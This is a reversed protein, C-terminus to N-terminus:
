TLESLAVSVCEIEEDTMEPFLPLTILSSCSKETEPLPVLDRHKLHITQKHDPTPFHVSTAVGRSSFHEELKVQSYGEVTIPCLHGVFSEDPVSYFRVKKSASLLYRSYIERRRQNWLSVHPLKIRLIAAQIEDLRSNRGEPIEISYKTGWGYQRLKRVKSLM